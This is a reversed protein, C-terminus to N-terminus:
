SLVIERGHKNLHIATNMEKHFYVENEKLTGVNQQSMAPPEPGLYGRCNRSYDDAEHAEQVCSGSEGFWCPCDLVAPLVSDRKPLAKMLSLGM